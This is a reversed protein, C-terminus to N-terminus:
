GGADVSLGPGRVDGLARLFNASWEAIDHEFVNARAEVHRARREERSMTLARGIAEAMQSRDYPNVMVSSKLQEAAGAFRSLILVGPNDPDQAAIYEKAVLNMGDALPTVMAADAARFLPALVERPINRHLYRIPTWDLEAHKGNVAGAIQELEARIEKYALIESRSPPAIQLLTARPMDPGRTDLYSEFGRLRHPIGKSYDLRDVGIMLKAGRRDPGILDSGDIAVSAEAFEQPAIGIPFSAIRFRRDAYSVMGDPLLEGRPARRIAALFSAVDSQSQLGVLDHAAMWQLFAEPQSLAELDTHTPFPIHLFFGMTVDVGLERLCHALPLFHYDHIWLRDDPRLLDKLLGAIRRNVRMYGERYEPRFDILDSRRHCLPWLVGNSYGLYYENRDAATLDFSLKTYGDAPHEVLHDRPTEVVEEAAGVWLGGSGRLADDLAVVLGGAPPKSLPIRNSVVVLRGKGEDSM